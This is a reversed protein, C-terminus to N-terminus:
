IKSLFGKWDEGEIYRRLSTTKFEPDLQLDDARMKGQLPFAM